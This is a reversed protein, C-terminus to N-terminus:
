PCGIRCIKGSNRGDCGGRSTRLLRIHKQPSIPKMCRYSSPEKMVMEHSRDSCAEWVSFRFLTKCERGTFHRTLGIGMDWASRNLERNGTPYGM